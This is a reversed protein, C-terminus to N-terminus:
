ENNREKSRSLRIIGQDLNLQFTFCDSIIDTEILFKEDRECVGSSGLYSQAVSSSQFRYSIQTACQLTTKKKEM